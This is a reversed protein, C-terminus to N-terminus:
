AHARACSVWARARGSRAARSERAERGGRVPRARRPRPGRPPGRRAPHVTPEDRPSREPRARSRAAAPGSRRSMEASDVQASTARRGTSPVRGASPRGANRSPRGWSRACSNGRRAGTGHSRRSTGRVRVHPESLIAGRHEGDNQPEAYNSACIAAGVRAVLIAEFALRSSPTVSAVLLVRKDVPNGVLREHRARFFDAGTRV